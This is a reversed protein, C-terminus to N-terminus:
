PLRYHHRYPVVEARSPLRRRNGPGQSRRYIKNESTRAIPFAIALLRDDQEARRIFKYEWRPEGEVYLVRRKASEVNVRAAGRLQQRSKRGPLSRHFVPHRRGPADRVSDLADREAHATARLLIQTGRSSQRTACPRMAKRGRTGARHHLTVQAALRGFRGSARRSRRMM